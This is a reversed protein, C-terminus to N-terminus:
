WITRVWLHSAGARQHYYKRVGEVDALRQSLKTKAEHVNVTEM